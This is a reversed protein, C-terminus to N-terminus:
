STFAVLRKTEDTGNGYEHYRGNEEPIGYGKAGRLNYRHCFDTFRRGTFGDHYSVRGWVYLWARDPEANNRWKDFTTKDTPISGKRIKTKQALVIGGVLEINEANFVNARFDESYTREICWRVDHAPLSGANNIVINCAIRDDTVEFQGLFPEIGGPEVSIFARQVIRTDDAQQKGIRSLVITFNAIYVTAIATLVAAVAELHDIIWIPPIFILYHTPCNDYDAKHNGCYNIQTPAIRLVQAVFLVLAAGVVFGLLYKGHRRM